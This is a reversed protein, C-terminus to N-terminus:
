KNLLSALKSKKRAAKNKHILGKGATRDIEKTALSFLEELNSENNEVAAEFKKVNTRMRSVQATNNAGKTINQRARKIATKSTAM